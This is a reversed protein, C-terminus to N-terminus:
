QGAAAPRAPAAAEAAPAELLQALRGAQLGIVGDVAPALDAVKMRFYGGVTYEWDIRTGGGDLPRLVVALKGTVAQGQMPGLAGEMLLVKNPNVHIVHMHEVSGRRAGEPAKPDKPLLECFCGTAQADIYLGSADKSWTHAPDWWKAPALLAAWVEEPSRAVETSQRVTFGNEASDVVEAHAPLGWALAAAALGIRIAAGM